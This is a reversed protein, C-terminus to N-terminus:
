RRCLESSSGHGTVKQCRAYFWLFKTRCRWSQTDTKTSQKFGRPTFLRAIPGWHRATHRLQIRNNM